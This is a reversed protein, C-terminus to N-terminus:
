EYRILGESLSRIEANVICEISDHYAGASPIKCQRRM